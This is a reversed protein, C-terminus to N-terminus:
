CANLTNCYLRQIFSLKFITLFPSLLHPLISSIRSQLHSVYSLHYTDSPFLSWLAVVITFCRSILDSCAIFTPIANAM